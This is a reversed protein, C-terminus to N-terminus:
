KTLNNILQRFEPMSRITGPVEASVADWRTGSTYYVLEAFTKFDVYHIISGDEFVVEKSAQRVATRANPFVDRLADAAWRTIYLIRSM